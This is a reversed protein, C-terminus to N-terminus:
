RHEHGAAPHLGIIPFPNLKVAPEAPAEDTLDGVLDYEHARTVRM